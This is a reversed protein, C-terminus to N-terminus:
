GIYNISVIDFRYRFLLAKLIEGEWIKLNKSWGM